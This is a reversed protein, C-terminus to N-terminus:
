VFVFCALTPSRSLTHAVYGILAGTLVIRAGALAIRAEALM